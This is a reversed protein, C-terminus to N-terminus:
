QPAPRPAAIAAPAPTAALPTAGVTAVAVPKPAAISPTVISLLPKSAAPRTASSDVLYGERLLRDLGPLIDPGLMDALQGRDRKGDCLILVRRELMSMGGSRDLLANRGKDSKELPMVKSTSM